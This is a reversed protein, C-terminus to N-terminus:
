RQIEAVRPGAPTAVIVLGGLYVDHPQRAVLAARWSGRGTAVAQVTDLALSTSPRAATPRAHQRLLRQWLAAVSLRRLAAAGRRSRRGTDWARWSAAFRRAVRTAPAASVQRGPRARAPGATPPGVVRAVHNPVVRLSQRGRRDHAASAVILSAVIAVAAAAVAFVVLRPRPRQRM